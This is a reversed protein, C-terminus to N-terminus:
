NQFICFKVEQFMQPVDEHEALKPVEPMRRVEQFEEVQQM